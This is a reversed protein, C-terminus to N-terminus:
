GAKNTRCNFEFQVAPLLQGDAKQQQYSFKFQAANLTVREFIRAPNNQDTQDISTVLVDDLSVVYYELAARGVSRFTLIAKDIHKGTVVEQILKPSSKDINKLVTIEGCTVKGTDAGTGTTSSVPNKFSQSYSLIDIEGKHKADVSEGPITLNGQTDELRLFIDAAATSPAISAAALTGALLPRTVMSALGSKPKTDPMSQEWKGTLKAATIVRRGSATRKVAHKEHGPARISGRM